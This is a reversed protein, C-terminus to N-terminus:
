TQDASEQNNWGGINFPGFPDAKDNAASAVVIANCGQIASPLTAYQYVDGTVISFEPVVPTSADAGQSAVAAATSSTPPPLLDAARSRDRVLARCAVGKAKLAQVVRRHLM